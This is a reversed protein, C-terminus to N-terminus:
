AQLIQSFVQQSNQKAIAKNCKELQNQVAPYNEEIRRVRKLVSESEFKNLETMYEKLHHTELLDKIKSSYSIAIFPTETKISVIISHLRMALTLGSRLFVELLESSSSPSKIFQVKGRNFMLDFIEQHLILDEPEQFALFNIKYGHKEAMEDLLEAANQKFEPSLNDMQRLCVLISKERKAPKPLPLSFAFDALVHIPNKINLKRLRKASKQDRLTILKSRKFLYKVIFKRIRGHLPGISQGLMAVPKKYRYAMFAQIGWILNAKFTLSGFLGGGGLIFLDCEKIAQKTAKNNTFIWKLISRLGAPFPKASKIQHIKETQLPDASLVTIQARSSQQKLQSILGELILEDGLNKAGYNGAIVIKM